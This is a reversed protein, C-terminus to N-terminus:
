LQTVNHETYLYVPHTNLHLVLTQRHRNTETEEM